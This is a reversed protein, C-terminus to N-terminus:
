NEKTSAHNTRQKIISLIYYFESCNTIKSLFLYIFAGSVIQIVVVLFLPLHIFGIVYVVIGMLLAKIISPIIDRIQELYSYNLLKRNPWSNIIQSLISSVIMGYTMWKVGFWMTAILITSGMIKKIVELKFFIDSRGMAMIANLNATHIPYFMYTVCFVRLFFVCPIWKDTLLLIVIPRACFALGMMLPAMVYISITISRRVMDKIRKTNDQERSMVPLLVSDISTNVNTVIVSPFQEGRNYFALDGSSYMKGIILQRINTYITNLLASALLKWGYSLLVRLRTISFSKIPRWKVIIWLMLTDISLNTLYQAVLAWIGGGKYALTIGVIASSITGFLTAWFFKKFLLNRSVYAQQVNKVGSVIVTISLVRIVSTLKENKYFEAIYPAIVFIFLYLLVCWVVNFYFVTSFDVDDTDKKQILANGLGSDVFVQLIQTIVLVLAVTGYDDPTLIRALVISVLFQIIQALSREAFRWFFNTFVKSRYKGNGM